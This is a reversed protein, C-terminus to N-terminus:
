AQTALTGLLSPGTFRATPGMSGQDLFALLFDNGVPGFGRDPSFSINNV